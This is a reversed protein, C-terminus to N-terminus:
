RRVVFRRPYFHPLPRRATQVPKPGNKEFTLLMATGDIKVRVSGRNEDIQLVEVNGDRQGEALIYSKEEFRGPGGTPQRVKLLARKTPLITTIGTLTVQPIPRAPTPPRLPPRPKLDFVNRIAIDAYPNSVSPTSAAPAALCFSLMAAAAAALKESHSV